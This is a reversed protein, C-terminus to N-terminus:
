RIAGSRADSEAESDKGPWWSTAEGEGVPGRLESGSFNEDTNARPDAQRGQSQYDSPSASPGRGSTAADSQGSMTGQQTTAGQGGTPTSGTNGQSPAVGQQTGSLPPSAPDTVTSQAYVSGSAFLAAVVCGLLNKKSKM